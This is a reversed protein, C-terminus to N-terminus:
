RGVAAGYVAAMDFPARCSREADSVEGVQMAALLVELRGQEVARDALDVLELGVDDDARAVERRKPKLCSYWSARCYM